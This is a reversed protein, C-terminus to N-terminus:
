LGDVKKYKKEKEGRYKRWGVYLLTFVITGGVSLIVWFFSPDEDKVTAQVLKPEFLKLLTHLNMEMNELNEVNKLRTLYEDLQNWDSTPTAIKLAPLIFQYSDIAAYYEKDFDILDAELTQVIQEYTQAKKNLYQNNSPDIATEMMLVYSSVNALKKEDSLAESTLEAITNTTKNKIYALKDESIELHGHDLAVLIDDLLNVAQPFKKAIAFEYMLYVEDLLQYDHNDNHDAFSHFPLLIIWFILILVLIRGKKRNVM